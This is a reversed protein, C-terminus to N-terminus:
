CWAGQPQLLAVGLQEQLRSVAYSVSSQSRHLAQAAQAFGGHEVIAQLVLWQETTTKPLSM